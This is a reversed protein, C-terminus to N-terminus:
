PGSHQPVDAQLRRAEEAMKFQDEATPEDSDNSDSQVMEEHNHSNSSAQERAADDLEDRGHEEEDYFMPQNNPEIFELQEDGMGTSTDGM